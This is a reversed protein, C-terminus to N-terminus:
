LEEAGILKNEQINRDNDNIREYNYVQICTYLAIQPKDISKGFYAYIKVYDINLNANEM